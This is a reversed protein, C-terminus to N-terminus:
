RDHVGPTNPVPRYPQSLPIPKLKRYVSKGTSRTPSPTLGTSQTESVPKHFSSAFQVQQLPVPHLGTLQPQYATPHPLTFKPGSEANATPAVLQSHPVPRPLRSASGVRQTQPPVPTRGGAVMGQAPPQKRASGSRVNQRSGGRQMSDDTLESCDSAADDGDRRAGQRRPNTGAKQQQVPVANGAKRHVNLPQGVPARMGGVGLNRVHAVPSRQVKGFLEMEMEDDLRGYDDNDQMLSDEELFDRGGGDGGGGGHDQRAHTNSHAQVAPLLHQKAQMFPDPGDDSWDDEDRPRHELAVNVQDDAVM